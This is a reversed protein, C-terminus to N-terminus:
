DGSYDKYDSYNSASRYTNNTYKIHRRGNILTRLMDDFQDEIKLDDKIPETSLYTLAENLSAQTTDQPQLGSLCLKWEVKNESTTYDYAESKVKYLYVYGWQQHFYVKRKQLFIIDETKYKDKDTISENCAVARAYSEQSRYSAPIKEIHKLEGLDQILGYRYADSKALSEWISDPVPKDHKLMFYAINQRLSLDTTLLCKDIFSKVETNDNYFPLLVKEYYILLYKSSSSKDEETQQSNQRKLENKALLLLETVKQEYKKPVLYNSDALYAMFSLFSEKFDENALLPLLDPIITSALRASDEMTSFLYNVQGPEKAAPPNDILLEKITNFSYLTKQEAMTNLLRMQIESTDGSNLYWQKLFDTSENEKIKGFIDMIKNKIEERDSEEKKPPINNLMDKLKPLLSKTYKYAPTMKLAQACTASDTSIIADLYKNSQDEFISGNFLTDNAPTFTNFFTTIFQSEPQTTDIMSFIFYTVSGKLLAKFKIGMTTNTDTFLFSFIKTGDVNEFKKRSVKYEYNGGMLELQKNWFAASDTFYTYEEYKNLDVFITEGTNKSVFTHRKYLNGADSRKKIEAIKYIMSMVRSHPEEAAIDLTTVTAHLATDAYSFFLPYTANNFPKFGDFYPKVSIGSSDPHSGAVLYYYIGDRLVRVTFFRAEDDTYTATVRNLEYVRNREKLKLPNTFNSLCSNLLFTDEDLFDTNAYAGKAYILDINKEKSYSELFTHYYNANYFGSVPGPSVAKYFPTSINIDKTQGQFVETNLKLADFFSTATTGLAYKKEGDCKIIVFEYPTIFFRTRQYDDNRNVSVIDYGTYFDNEILEKKEITGPIKEYILSDITKLIYEKSKGRFTFNHHIRAISYYSGNVVDFHTWATLYPGMQLPLAAGPIKFELFGDDTKVQGFTTEYPLSKIKNFTNEADRKMKVAKVKYGHDRLVQLIGNSNTLTLWNVAAFLTKKQMMDHLASAIYNTRVNIIQLVITDIGNKLRKLLAFLTESKGTVIYEPILTGLRKQDETSFEKFQKSLIDFLKENKKLYDVYAYVMSDIPQLGSYSKNKRIAYQMVKYNPWIMKNADSNVGVRSAYQKEFDMLTSSGTNIMSFLSTEANDNTSFNPIYVGNYYGNYLSSLFHFCYDRIGNSDALERIGKVFDIETTVMECADIYKLLNDDITYKYKNAMPLSGFIYSPKKLGNGSIEFLLGNNNQANTKFFSLFIITLLVIRLPKKIM